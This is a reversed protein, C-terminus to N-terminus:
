KKLRYKKGSQSKKIPPQENDSDSDSDSESELQDEIEIEIGDDEDEIEEVIPEAKKNKIGKVAAGLYSTLDLQRITDKKISLCRRMAKDPIIITSNDPDKLGNENIYKWLDRTIVTLPKKAGKPYGLLKCLSTNVTYPNNIGGKVNKKKPKDKKECEKIEKSVLRSVLTKLRRSMYQINRERIVQEKISINLANIIKEFDECSDMLSKFEDFDPNSLDLEVTNEVPEDDEEEYTLLDNLHVGNEIAEKKKELADFDIEDETDEISDIYTMLSNKYDFFAKGKDHIEEEHDLEKKSQLQSKPKRGRKKPQNNMNKTSKSKTNVMEIEEDSSIIEQNHKLYKKNDKNINEDLDNEESESTDSNNNMFNNFDFNMGGMDMSDFVKTTEDPKNKVFVNVNNNGPNPNNGLGNKNISTMVNGMIKNVSEMINHMNTQKNQPNKQIDLSNNVLSQIAQGLDNESDNVSISYQNPNTQTVNNFLENDSDSLSDIDKIPEMDFDEDDSESSSEIYIDLRQRESKIIERKRRILKMRESPRLKEKLKDKIEEIEPTTIEDDSIDEPNRNKFDRKTQKKVLTKPKLKAKPM